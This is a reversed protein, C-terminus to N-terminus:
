TTLQCGFNKFTFHYQPKIKRQSILNHKLSPVRSLSILFYNTSNNNLSKYLFQSNNNKNLLIQLNFDNMYNKENEKIIKFYVKKTLILM